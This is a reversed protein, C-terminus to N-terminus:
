TNAVEQLTDHGYDGETSLGALYIALRLKNKGPPLGRIELALNKTIAARADDPVNRLEDIQEALPKEAISWQVDKDHQASALPPVWAGLLALVIAFLRRHMM